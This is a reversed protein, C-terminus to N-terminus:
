KIQLLIKIEEQKNGSHRTFNLLNVMTKKTRRGAITSTIESGKGLKPTNKWTEAYSSM